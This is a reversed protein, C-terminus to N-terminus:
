IPQAPQSRIKQMEAEVLSVRDGCAVLLTSLAVALFALKAPYKKHHLM